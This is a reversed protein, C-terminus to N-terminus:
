IAQRGNLAETLINILSSKDYPKTIYHSCGGALLRENEDFLSYGTLAIIPTREYGPIKRIQRTADLGSLGAGLNIDMLIADYNSARAMEIAKEGKTTHDMRCVQKLFFVTLERNLLNDEVILIKPLGNSDAHAPSSAPETLSPTQMERFGPENPLRITFCSGKGPESEISIEGKLLHIVKKSISLGLGSGQFKRSLGESVQRFEEFILGIDEPEIGLGTDTVKVQFTKDTQVLEVTVGGKTTFKIANDLIQQFLQRFLHEDTKVFAPTSVLDKLYLDKEEALPLFTNITERIVGAIDTERITVKIKGADLQSLTLISDFTSMLWKGSSNINNAMAVMEPDKLEEALLESFGLIGNLPTRLEHSMNALISSKLHDSEEAKEKALILQQEYTKQLTIDRAILFLYDEGVLKIRRASVQIPIRNGSKSKWHTELLFFDDPSSETFGSLISKEIEGTGFIETGSISLLERQEYELIRCAALNADAISGDRLKVMLIADNATEFLAQYKVESLQITSKTKEIRFLIRKLLEPFDIPKIIYDDAGMKMGFLIDEKEAKASIFIFPILSTTETAKLHDFVEYGNMKPMYIDSLIIDPLHRTAMEVGMEGNLAKIIEFGEEKLFDGISDLLVSNDEIILVKNM